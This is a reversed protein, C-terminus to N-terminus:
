LTIDLTILENKEIFNVEAGMSSLVKVSVWLPLINEQIDSSLLNRIIKMQASLKKDPAIELSISVKTKEAPLQIANITIISQVAAIDILYNLINAFAISLHHLDGKVYVSKSDILKVTNKKNEIPNECFQSILSYLDEFSFVSQNLKLNSSIYKIWTLINLTTLFSKFSLSKVLHVYEKKQENTLLDYNTDLLGSFGILGNFSGRTDHIIHSLLNADIVAKSVPYNDKM